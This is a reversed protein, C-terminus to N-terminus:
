SADRLAALRAEVLAKVDGSADPLIREYTAKADARRGLDLQLRALAIEADITYPGSLKAAREYLTAADETRDADERIQGLALLAQQEFEPARPSSAVYAEYAGAAGESDGAARLAHGQYLPAFRAFTTGAYDRGLDEFARAADAFREGRFAGHAIRFQEAAQQHTRARNWASVSGVVLVAGLVAAFAILTRRHAAGWAVIRRVFLTFEDPGKLADRDLKDAM